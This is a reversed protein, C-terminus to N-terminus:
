YQVSVIRETHPQCLVATEGENVTLSRFLVETGKVSIFGQTEREITNEM